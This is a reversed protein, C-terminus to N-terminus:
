ARAKNDASQFVTITSVLTKRWHGDVKVQIMGGRVRLESDTPLGASKLQAELYDIAACQHMQYWGIPLSGFKRGAGIRSLWSFMARLANEDTFLNSTIKM